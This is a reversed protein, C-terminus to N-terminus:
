VNILYQQFNFFIGIFKLMLNINNTMGKGKLNTFRSCIVGSKFGAPISFRREREKGVSQVRVPDRGVHNRDHHTGRHDRVEKCGDEREHLLSEFALDPPEHAPRFPVPDETRSVGEGIEHGEAHGQVVGVRAEPVRSERCKGM